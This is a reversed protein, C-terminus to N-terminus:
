ANHSHVPSPHLPTLHIRSKIVNECEDARAADQGADIHQQTKRRRQDQQPRRQDKDTPADVGSPRYVILRTLCSNLLDTFNVGALASISQVRTSVSTCPGPADSTRWYSALLATNAQRIVM